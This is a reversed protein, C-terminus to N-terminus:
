LKNSTLVDHSSESIREIVYANRRRARSIPVAHQPIIAYAEAALATQVDVVKGPIVLDSASDSIAPVSPLSQRLNKRRRSPEIMVFSQGTPRRAILQRTDNM